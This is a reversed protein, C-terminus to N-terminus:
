LSASIEINKYRVRTVFKVNLTNIYSVRLYHNITTSDSTAKSETSRLNTTLAFIRVRYSLIMAVTLREEADLETKVGVGTQWVLKFITALSFLGCVDNFYHSFSNAASAM